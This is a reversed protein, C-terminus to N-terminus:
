NRFASGLAGVRDAATVDGMRNPPGIDAGMGAAIDLDSKNVTGKIRTGQAGIEMVMVRGDRMDRYYVTPAGGGRGGAAAGGRDASPMTTLDLNRAAGYEWIVVVVVVAVVAVMAAVLLIRWTDRSGSKQKAAKSAPVPAPPARRVPRPPQGRGAVAPRPMPRSAVPM